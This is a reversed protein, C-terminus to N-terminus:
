LNRSRHRTATANARSAPLIPPLSGRPQPGPGLSCAAAVVGVDADQRDLHDNGNDGSCPPVPVADQTRMTAVHHLSEVACDADAAGGGRRLTPAAVEDRPSGGAPVASASASQSSCVDLSLHAVNVKGIRKGRQQVADGAPTLTDDFELGDM